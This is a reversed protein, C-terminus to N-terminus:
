EIMGVMYLVVGALLLAYQPLAVAKLGCAHQGFLSFKAAVDFNSQGPRRAEQVLPVLALTCAGFVASLTLCAMAALRLAESAFEVGSAVWSLLALTAVLLYLSADKFFGLAQTQADTTQANM